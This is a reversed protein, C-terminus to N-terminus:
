HDDYHGLVSDIVVLEIDEFLIYVIRDKENLRRSWFEADQYRLREPKGIGSRPESMIALILEFCKSYSNKDSRKLKELQSFAKETVELQYSM